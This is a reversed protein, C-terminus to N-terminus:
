IKELGQEHLLSRRVGARPDKHDLVKPGELKLGRLVSQCDIDLTSSGEIAPQVAVVAALWQGAQASQPFPHWVAGCIM